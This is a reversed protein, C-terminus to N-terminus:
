SDDGGARRARAERLRARNGAEKLRFRRESESSIAVLVIGTFLGMKPVEGWSGEPDLEGLAAALRAPDRECRVSELAEDSFGTLPSGGPALGLLRSGARRLADQEAASLAPEGLRGAREREREAILKEAAERYAAFSHRAAVRPGLLGALDAASELRVLQRLVRLTRKELSARANPLAAPPESSVGKPGAPDPKARTGARAAEREAILKGAAKRYAAFSHRAAVRPGLLAPLDGASSLGLLAHLLQLPRKELSARASPVTKRRPM